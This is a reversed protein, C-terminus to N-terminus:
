FVKFYGYECFTRRFNLRKNSKYAMIYNNVNKSVGQIFGSALDFHLGGLFLLGAVVVPFLVLSPFLAAFIVVCVVVHVM